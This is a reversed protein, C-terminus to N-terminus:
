KEIPHQFRKKILMSDVMVQRRKVDALLSDYVMKMIVPHMVYYEYSRMFEQHNLHYLELIQQYYYKLKEQRLHLSDYPMNDVYAQAAQMDLLINKMEEPQIYSKPVREHHKCGAIMILCAVAYTWCIIRQRISNKM